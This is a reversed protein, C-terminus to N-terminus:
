PYKTWSILIFTAWHVIRCFVIKTKLSRWSWSPRSHCGKSIVRGDDPRNWIVRSEREREKKWLDCSSYVDWKRAFRNITPLLFCNKWGYTFVLIKCRVSAKDCAALFLMPLSDSGNATVRTYTKLQGHFTDKWKSSSTLIMTKNTGVTPKPRQDPYAALTVLVNLFWSHIQTSVQINKFYVDIRWCWLESIDSRQWSSIWLYALSLIGEADM